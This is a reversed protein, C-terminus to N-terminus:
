LPAPVRAHGSRSSGARSRAAVCPLVPIPPWSSRSLREEVLAANPCGRITLLTLEM